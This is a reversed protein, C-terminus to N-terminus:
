GNIGAPAASDALPGDLTRGLGGGCGGGSRCWSRRM